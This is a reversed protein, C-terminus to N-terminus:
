PQVGEWTGDRYVICLQKGAERAYRITAWTGSRLVEKMEFPTAILVDCRTAIIKNRRLPHQVPHVTDWTENRHALAWDHQEDTSPYMEVFAVRESALPHFQRDAGACAGHLARDPVMSRLLRRVAKEQAETMGRRTGTFGVIM